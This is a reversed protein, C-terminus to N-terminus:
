EFSNSFVRDVLGCTGPGPNCDPPLLTARLVQGPLVVAQNLSSQTFLSGAVGSDQVGVTASAGNAIAAATGTQVYRYEFAGSTGENLVIAFNVTQADGPESDHKGRWEIFFQRNPATGTVHTYMGGGTISLDLDDWLAFLTPRTGFAEAPLAANTLLASGIGSAVFQLNGNSSARLTAGAAIPTAYIRTAFDAPLTVTRTANDVNSANVLTGGSPITAGTGPTGFVYGGGPGGVPLAFNYLVPSPGGVMTVSQTLNVISGCAVTNDTSIQFPSTNLATGGLPPLDPYASTAQSITVGPTTSSLTANVATAANGGSNTLRVNFANCENPEIIANGTTLQTQTSAVSASVSDIRYGRAAMCGNADRGHVTFDFVGDAAPTGTLQNGTLAVGDPLNGTAFYTVAGSGGTANFTQTPYIAGTTVTRPVSTPTINMAPCGNLPQTNYVVLAFDQNPGAVTPDGQGAINTARVTVTYPGSTGVPLFVSEINNLADATPAGATSNRGTFRNGRYTQGGVTVELDLNNVAAAGTTSGPADSWALSVRFPRAIDSVTGTFTRTQGTADFRDIPLQDRLGRPTNDFTRELNMRGTGQNNSPLDDSLTEMYQAANTLFAKTMAPSPPANHFPAPQNIFWQRVLSAAGAVAPSSFSTGNGTRYFQQQPSTPLFSGTYCANYNGPAATLRDLMVVGGAINTAPALLDPKYRTDAAPGRSSRAYMADANTADAVGPRVNQSGGATIVNKASAPSGVTQAGPGSNGAAFVIVMQQNGTAPFTADAPQADRVLRDYAQASANYAGSVAAGWSNNSIRAGRVVAGLNTYARSTSDEFDPGTFTGSNTFFTSNGMRVFPNVGGGFYFGPSATEDGHPLQRTVSVVNGGVVHSVWTGHGVGGCGAQDGVAATGERKNYVVLSRAPVYPNGPDGGEHLAFHNPEISGNDLGSDSVDVVFNSAAFQAPTFGLSLLWERYGIGGVAGPAIPENPTGGSLRNALILNQREDLMVPTFDPQISIVDAREAIMSLAGFPVGARVNVYHASTEVHFTDSALSREIVDLTDANAVADGILQISYHEAAIGRSELDYVERSVKFSAAYGGSWLVAGAAASGAFRDHAAADGYVLYAYDPIYDVIMLGADRLAQHWRPDIPGSFQVVRLQKGTSTTAVTPRAILTALDIAGANLHLKPVATGHLTAANASSLGAILGLLLTRRIAASLHDSRAQKSSINM